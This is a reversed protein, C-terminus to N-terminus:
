KKQQVEMCNWYPRWNRLSGYEWNTFGILSTMLHSKRWLYYFETGSQILNSFIVMEFNLLSYTPIIRWLITPEQSGSTSMSWTLLRSTVFSVTRSRPRKNRWVSEEKSTFITSSETWHQLLGRMSCKSIQCRFEEKNIVFVDFWASFWFNASGQDLAYCGYSITFLYMGWNQLKDKELM